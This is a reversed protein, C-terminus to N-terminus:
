TFRQGGKNELSGVKDQKREQSYDAAFASSPHSGGTSRFSVISVPRVAAQCPMTQWDMGIQPVATNDISTRQLM